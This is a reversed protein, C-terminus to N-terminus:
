NAKKVEPKVTYTYAENTAKSNEAVMSRSKAAFTKPKDVPRVTVSFETGHEAAFTGKGILYIADDASSYPNAVKMDSLNDYNSAAAVLRDFGISGNGSKNSDHIGFNVHGSVKSLLNVNGRIKATNLYVVVEVSSNAPVKIKQSTATYALTESKTQENTNSFDYSTSVEVSTEGILPIGFTASATVGLNFGHTTSTTVSNTISKTFENTSLEQESDSNNTLISTGVFLGQSNTVIPAGDLEVSNQHVKDIVIDEVSFGKYGNFNNKELLSFAYKMRDQWNSISPSGQEQAMAQTPSIQAASASSPSTFAFSTGIAGIMALSLIQKTKKSSKKM